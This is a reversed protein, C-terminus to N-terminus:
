DQKILKIIQSKGESEVQMFYVGNTETHLDIKQKGAPITETMIVEGLANMISIKASKGLGITFVGTSPNPYINIPSASSLSRLGIGAINVCASTDSCASITVIVAYNGNATATFSQSTQGGIAINGNDCDIWVYSASAANATITEAVTTTTIDIAPNVTLNTTVTSDCGNAAPLIDTYTGSTNYTSTGVTVSQGACLTLTQSGTIAPSVTLNTTVTSDCGNAAPLIDTYTGSTNYTNTGVTVSQGACVTLTQSGTIAPNITLHSTVTSDCGNAATLTTTYTGSTTYTNTGVTLSQGACLTVTQTFVIAPPETITVTTTSACGNADMTTLTYTGPCLNTFIPSAGTGSPGTYSYPSTGGTVGLTVSGDCLGNCSVNTQSVVSAVVAAPETITVTHTAQCSNADTVTLTYTGAGVNSLDETSAGNSWSYTYGNTLTVSSNLNTFGATSTWTRPTTWASTALDYAGTAKLYQSATFATTFFSTSQLKGGSYMDNVPLQYGATGATVVANGLATGYFLADVPVTSSTLSTASSSFVAIGDASTGGNGLVGTANANGIGGDGATTGTNIARLINMTPTMSSGGVYVIQGATVSGTSIEFAYSINAGQRWGNATATGNNSFVVTYPTVSFDINKTAILEVFEFPSDTGAPDPLVESIILGPSTAGAMTGGSVTADVSGLGGNCPPSTVTSTVGLASSPQTISVTQTLTTTGDSVTCTYSGAALGSATAATGGSPAWSYTITGAGGSASVTASGNSGGFCSVNTSSALSVTLPTVVSLTVNNVAFSPDTGVGDDNNVWRFAIKVNANNNASAPLAVSHAAWQGQGGGCVASKLSAVLTTWTSGDFYLLSANDSMGDGNGIFDFAVTINTRGSCDITPSEARRDTQPCFLFGCLGGADYSAGGAPNFVSTVHLTKNGNSAVACGSPAIGGEADTVQFFNPDAGETGMPVNLTWGHTGEFDQSYFIQAQSAFALLSCVLLLLTKKM